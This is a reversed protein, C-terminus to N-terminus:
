APKYNRCKHKKIM